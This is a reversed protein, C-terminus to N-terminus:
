NLSHAREEFGCHSPGEDFEADRIFARMKGGRWPARRDFEADRIFARM